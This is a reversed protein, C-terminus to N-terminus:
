PCRTATPREATEVEARSARAIELALEEDQRRSAVSYGILRAGEPPKTTSCCGFLVKEGGHPVAWWAIVM